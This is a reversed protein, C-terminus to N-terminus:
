SEQIKSFHVAEQKGLWEEFIGFTNKEDIWRESKSNEWEQLLVEDVRIISAKLLSSLATEITAVKRAASEEKSILWSYKISPDCVIQSFEGPTVIVRKNTGPVTTELSYVKGANEEFWSVDDPDLKEFFEIKSINIVWHVYRGM